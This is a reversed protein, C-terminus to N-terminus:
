NVGAVSLHVQTQKSRTKMYQKVARVSVKLAEAINNVHKNRRLWTEKCKLIVLARYESYNPEPRTALFELVETM